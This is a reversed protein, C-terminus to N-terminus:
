ERVTIERSFNEIGMSKKIFFWMIIQLKGSETGSPTLNKRGETEHQRNGM